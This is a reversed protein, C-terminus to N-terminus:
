SAVQEPFPCGECGAADALCFDDYIQLLAQHHWLKASFKKARQATGFLRLGAVTTRTSDVPAPLKQYRSWLEERDPILLPYVLNAMLDRVRQAGLLALPAPSPKASLTYHTTWYPHSLEELRAIFTQEHFGEAELLRRLSKWNVVIQWLAAIRRQPHNVPRTGSLTWKIPRAPTGPTLEARYRWWSQWLGRLWTRTTDDGHDGERGDLCGAVGYLLAEADDPRKQLFRLPLRQALVNMPLKNRSYGLAEAIGQYIAQDLGHIGAVRRLRRAKRELRWRAADELIQLVRAEPLSALAQVCRGPRAPASREGSVKECLAPDLLVQPVERNEATRTYFKAEGDKALFLHLLTDNYASNVAHGHAEWDRPTLDIEISGRRATGAIEVVCDRFDPGAGHNWWGFDVVRVPEGALTTFERGFDGSFWRSQWALEDPQPPERPFLEPQGVRPLAATELFEFYRL